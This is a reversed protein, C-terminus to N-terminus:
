VIVPDGKAYIHFVKDKISSMNIDTEIRAYFAKIEGHKMTGTYTFDEVPTFPANLESLRLKLNNEQQALDIYVKINELEIGTKNELYVIRPETLRGGVVTGFDLQQLIDGKDTSYYTNNEDRFLLGKYGGMITFDTSTKTGMEDVAVISIKNPLENVIDDSNWSYDFTFPAEKWDTYGRRPSVQKDNILVMFRVKRGTTHNITAKMYFENHSDISVIPEGTVVIIQYDKQTIEGRSDKAIIRITNDGCRFTSLEYSHNFEYGNSRKYWGSPAPTIQRWSSEGFQQTLIQYEVNDNELDNIRGSFTVKNDEVTVVENEIRPGKNPEFEIEMDKVSFRSKGGARIGVAAKIKSQHTSPFTAWIDSDKLQEKTLGADHVESISVNKWKGSTADYTLWQNGNTASLLFRAKTASETKMSLARDRTEVANHFIYSLTGDIGKPEVKEDDEIYLKKSDPLGIKKALEKTSMSKESESCINLNLGSYPKESSGFMQVEIKENPDYLGIYPHAADRKTVKLEKVALQKKSVDAIGKTDDEIVITKSNILNEFKTLEGDKVANETEHSVVVAEVNHEKKTDITLRLKQAPAAAKNKEKFTSLQVCNETREVDCLTEVQRKTQAGDDLGPIFCYVDVKGYQELEKFKAIPIGKLDDMGATIEKENAPANAGVSSWEEADKDYVHYANNFYLFLKETDEFWLKPAYGELYRWKSKDKIYKYQFVPTYAKDTLQESTLATVGESNCVLRGTKDKDYFCDKFEVWEAKGTLINTTILNGGSVTGNFFTETITNKMATDSQLGTCYGILGGCYDHEVAVKANSHCSDIVVGNQLTISGVLSGARSQAVIEGDTYCYKITVNNGTISGALIGAKEEAKINARIIGIDLIQAGKNLNAFLGANKLSPDNIMLNKIVHGDGDFVGSFNEIPQWGKGQNYPAVDMNIDANLRFYSDTTTRVANLDDVTEIIFPDRSYGAGKM